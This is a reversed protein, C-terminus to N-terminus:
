PLGITTQKPRLRYLPLVLLPLSLVNYPSLIVHSPRFTLSPECTGLDGGCSCFGFSWERGNKGVPLNKANRSGRVQMGPNAQPQQQQYHQSQSCYANALIPPIELLHQYRGNNYYIPVPKTLPLLSNHSLM